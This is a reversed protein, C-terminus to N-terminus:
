LPSLGSGSHPILTELKLEVPLLNSTGNLPFLSAGNSSNNDNGNPAGIISSIAAALAVTFNPNSAITATMMSLPHSMKHPFVIPHAPLQPFNLTPAHFPLPSTFVCSDNTMDLTITPFPASSSLTAMPIHPVSSLVGVTTNNLAENKSTSGSSSLFMAAAASTSNAMGTASHPLPHNHNGEYTTILVSKDERCRQVQKRVPCGVSMTCRYYARPSPNGKAIKQGYKRWQCGDSILPAESRARVSVRAKKVPLESPKAEKSSGWSQSSSQDLVDEVPDPGGQKGINVKTLHEEGDYVSAVVKADLKTCPRTDLLRQGGNTEVKQYPKKQLTAFLQLQHYNKTIQDLMTRLKCNEEHLRLLEKRLQFCLSLSFELINEKIKLHMYIYIYISTIICVMTKLNEDNPASRSFQATPSTLNLATNVLHDTFLTSSGDDDKTHRPQLHNINYNSNPTDSINHRSSSSFFDVEKISPVAHHETIPHLDLDTSRLLTLERRPQHHNEM